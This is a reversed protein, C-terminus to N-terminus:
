LYVLINNYNIIMILVHLRILFELLFVIFVVSLDLGILEEELDIVSDGVPSLYLGRRIEIEM